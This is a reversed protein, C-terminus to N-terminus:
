GIRMVTEIRGPTPIHKSFGWLCGVPVSHRPFPFSQDKERLITGFISSSWYSMSSVFSRISFISFAAKLPGGVGSGVEYNPPGAGSVDSTNWLRGSGMVSYSSLPKSHVVCLECLEHGPDGVLTQRAFLLRLQDAAEARAGHRETQPQHAGRHQDVRQMREVLPMEEAPLRVALGRQAFVAGRAFALPLLTPESTWEIVQHFAALRQQPAPDTGFTPRFKRGDGVKSGVGGFKDRHNVTELRLADDALHVADVRGPRRVTSSPKPSASTASRSLSTGSNASATFDAESVRM